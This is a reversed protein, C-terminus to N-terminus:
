LAEWGDLTARKMRGSWGSEPDVVLVWEGADELVERTKGNRTFRRGPLLATGVEASEFVPPADRHAGHGLVTLQEQLATRQALSLGSIDPVALEEVREGEGVEVWRLMLGGMQGDSGAPRDFRHTQRDASWEYGLEVVQQHIFQAARDTFAMWENEAVRVSKFDRWDSM